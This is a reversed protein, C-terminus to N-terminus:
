GRFTDELAQFSALAQDVAVGLGPEESLQLRGDSLAPFPRALGERLPNPNSDVELLGDGGVAALLHASAVLGIGGGLHHPCFRRGAGLAETAVPFCGSIGGWKTVDPQIVALAGDDIAGHFDRGGCLNEGGALPIPSVEALGAWVRTPHDAAIPEELWIPSYSDLTRSWEAAEEPSWAQNADVAIPAEPGLLRRLAELNRIDTEEGFGVKLKFARYGAEQAERAQETVGDPGIGSAYAAVSAGGPSGGWSDGCPRRRGAPGGHGVPRHRDRRDGPSRARSGSQIAVIRTRSSLHQFVAVPHPWERGVILPALVSVIVGGPVRRRAGPLQVM